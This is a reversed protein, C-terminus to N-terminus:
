QKWNKYVRESKCCLSKFLFEITRFPRKYYIAKLCLAAGTMWVPTERQLVSAIDNAFFTFQAMKLYASLAYFDLLKVPEDGFAVKTLHRFELKFLM